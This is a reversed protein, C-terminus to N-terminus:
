AIRGVVLTTTITNGTEIDMCSHLSWQDTDFNWEYVDIMPHGRYGSVLYAWECGMDDGRSLWGTTGDDSRYAHGYGVVTYFRDGDGTRASLADHDLSSWGNENQDLLISLAKDVGDRRMINVLQAGVGEPYGDWHVYRCRWEEANDYTGILSRTAM